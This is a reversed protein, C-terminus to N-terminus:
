VGMTMNQVFVCLKNMESPLYDFLNIMCVKNDNIDEIFQICEEGDAFTIADNVVHRLQTVM